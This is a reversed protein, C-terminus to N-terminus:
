QTLPWAPSHKLILDSRRRAKFKALLHSVHFKVTRESIHLKDAIEKNALGQFVAMLVERERRTLYVPIARFPQHPISGLISDVFRALQSGAIWFGNAAVVQVARPLDEHLDAYRVVGRVGLRLYPFLKEDKLTEEAVMVRGNSVSSRIKEILSETAPRSPGADVVYVSARPLRLREMEEGSGHHLRLPKSKFLPPALVRQMEALQGAHGSIVCVTLPRAQSNVAPASVSPASLPAGAERRM